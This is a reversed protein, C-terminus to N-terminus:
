KEESEEKEKKKSKRGRRKKKESSVEEEEIEGEDEIETLESRSFGLNFVHFGKERATEILQIRKRSGLKASVRIGHLKPDLSELESPHMVLIDELGSPHLGRIKKPNRYGAEPSKVGTKTKRRTKNDLGRAKRWREKVKVRRWSEVRDFAPQKRKKQDRIRLLRKQETEM